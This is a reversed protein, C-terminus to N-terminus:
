GARRARDRRPTLSPRGHRGRGCRRDGIQSVPDDREHFIPATSPGSSVAAWAPYRCPKGASKGQRPLRVASGGLPYLGWRVESVGFRGSEGAVRIDAAEEAALELIRAVRDSVQHAERSPASRSLEARARDLEASVAAFRAAM